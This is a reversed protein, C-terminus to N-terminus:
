YPLELITVYSYDEVTSERTGATKELTITHNGAPIGTVVFQCSMPSRTTQTGLSFNFIRQQEPLTDSKYKFIFGANTSSPIGSCSVNVLWTGGGAAYIAARPNWKGLAHPMVETAKFQPSIIKGSLKMDGAVDLRATPNKTGIGVDGKDTVVLHDVEPALGSKSAISYRWGTRDGGFITKGSWPSEPSAVLAVTRPEADFNVAKTSTIAGGVDLHSRPRDIVGIGIGVPGGNPNLYLPFNVNLSSQDASQLWAGTSSNVGADLVANDDGRIRLAAATQESGSTAPWDNVGSQVTFKANPSTTGIGVNGGNPNLVLPYALSLNFQDVSQLWAGSFSNVGADLVANDGGRLRLAAAPHTGKDGSTAPWANVGSQVTFKANPFTTGIGVNGGNPNLLLNQGGFTTGEKWAQIFGTGNDSSDMGIRLRERSDAKDTIVLQPASTSTSSGELTLRAPFPGTVAGMGVNGNDGVSLASGSTATGLTEAFKARFAFATSVVQQRPSIENDVTNADGDDVTVGLYRLSGNFVDSLNVPPTSSPGKEAFGLPSNTTNSGQGMLVSFEGKSIVVTQQESYLLNQQLFLTPSNWIRFTVTRTVPTPDGVPLGNAGVVRGQYSITPPVATTQASSLSAAALLLALQLLPRKM